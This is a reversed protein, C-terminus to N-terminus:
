WLMAQSARLAAELEALNAVVADVLGARLLSLAHDLPAPALLQAGPAQEALLPELPLRDPSAVSRGRLGELGLV